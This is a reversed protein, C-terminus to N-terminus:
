RTDAILKMGIMGLVGAMLRDISPKVRMYAGRPGSSSFLLSVLTYWAAENVFVILVAACSVWLPAHPPLLAFFISGFFVVVKPNAIQILFGNRLGALLPADQKSHTGIEIAAPAHRWIMIALYLLYLGGAIRLITYAWAAQQLIVAMGLMAAIAWFCAGAAMGLTGTLAPMRGDTMATRTIFLFSQGPSIAAMMHVVALSALPLLYEM